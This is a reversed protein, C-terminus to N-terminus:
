ATGMILPISPAIELRLTVRQAALERRLLANVEGFLKLDLPEKQADAKRSLGRFRQIVDGARRGDKAIWEVARRV